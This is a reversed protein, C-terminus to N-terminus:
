DAKPKRDERDFFEKLARRVIWAKPLGTEKSLDSVRQYLEPGLVINTMPNEDWSDSEAIHVDLNKAATMVAEVVTSIDADFWEKNLKPHDSLLRLTENEVARLHDAPCSWMAVKDFSRNFYRHSRMRGAPSKTIGVKTHQDTRIVYIYSM